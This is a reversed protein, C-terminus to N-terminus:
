RYYDLLFPLKAWMRQNIKFNALALALFKFTMFIFILMLNIISFIDLLTVGIFTLTFNFNVFINLQFHM